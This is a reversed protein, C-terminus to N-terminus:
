IQLSAHSGSVWGACEGLSNVGSHKWQVIRGFAMVTWQAAHWHSTVSNKCPWVTCIHKVVSVLRACTHSNSVLRVQQARQHLATSMATHDTQHLLLLKIVQQLCRVALTVTKNVDNQRHKLHTPELPCWSMCRSDWRGVRDVGTGTRVTVYLVSYLYYLLCNAICQWKLGSMRCTMRSKLWSGGLGM